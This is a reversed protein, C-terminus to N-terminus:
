RLRARGLLASRPSGANTRGLLALGAANIRVVRCGDDVQLIADTAGEVIATLEAREDDLARRLGASRFAVALEHRALRVVRLGEDDLPRGEESRIFLVGVVRDDALILLPGEGAPAWARAAAEDEFFTPLEATDPTVGVLRLM